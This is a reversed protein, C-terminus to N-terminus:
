PVRPSKRVEIASVAAFLRERSANQERIAALRAAIEELTLEENAALKAVEVEARLQAIERELQLRVM